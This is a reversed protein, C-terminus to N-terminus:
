GALRLHNTERSIPALCILHIFRSDGHTRIATATAWVLRRRHRDVSRCILEPRRAGSVTSTAAFTSTYESGRPSSIMVLRLTNELSAITPTAAGVKTM